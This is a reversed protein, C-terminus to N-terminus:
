CAMERKKKKREKKKTECKQDTSTVVLRASKSWDKYRKRTCEDRLPKLVPGSETGDSPSLDSSSTSLRGM